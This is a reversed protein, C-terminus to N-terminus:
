NRDDGQTMYLTNPPLVSKKSTIRAKPISACYLYAMTPTFLRDKDYPIYVPYSCSDAQEVIKFKKFSFCELFSNKLKLSM